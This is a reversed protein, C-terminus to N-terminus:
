FWKEWAYFQSWDFYSAAHRRNEFKLMDIMIRLYHVFSAFAPFCCFHLPQIVPRIFAFIAFPLWKYWEDTRVILTKLANCHISIRKLQTHMTCNARVTDTPSFCYFHSGARFLAFSNFPYKSPFLLCIPFFGLCVYCLIFVFRFQIKMQHPCFFFFFCM